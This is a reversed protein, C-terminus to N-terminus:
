ARQIILPMFFCFDATSVSSIVAPFPISRSGVYSVMVAKKKFRHIESWIITLTTHKSIIVSGKFFIWFYKKQWNYNINVKINMAHDIIVPQIDNQSTM